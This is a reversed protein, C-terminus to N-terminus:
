PTWPTFSRTSSTTKPKTSFGEYITLEIHKLDVLVMRVEEPTARMMISTILIQNRKTQGLM